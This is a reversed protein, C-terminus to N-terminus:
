KIEMVYRLEYRDAPFLIDATEVATANNDHDIVRFTQTIEVLDRAAAMELRKAEDPTPTRITLVEEVQNVHLGIRDFRAVIGQDRLPGEHPLEIETGETLALPEYSFSSTVPQDNMRILYRTIMVPDDPEIGLRKAIDLSARGPRSHHNVDLPVGSAEAERVYTRAEQGRWYRQPAIRTLRTLSRAFVGKGRISTALGWEQLLRVAHRATITSVEYIQCLERESPLKTGDPIEGAVIKSRLHKAIRRYVPAGEDPPMDKQSDDLPGFLLENLIAGEERTLAPNRGISDAVYSSLNVYSTQEHVM